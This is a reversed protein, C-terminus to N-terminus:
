IGCINLGHEGGGKLNHHGGEVALAVEGPDQVGELQLCVLEVLDNLDDDPRIVPQGPVHDFV